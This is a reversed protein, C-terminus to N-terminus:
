VKNIINLIGSVFLLYPAAVSSAVVVAGTFTQQVDSDIVGKVMLSIGYSFWVAVAAIIAANILVTWFVANVSNAPNAPNTSGLLVIIAGVIFV